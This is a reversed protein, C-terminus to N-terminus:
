IQTTRCRTKDNKSEEKKCVPARAFHGKEGCDFCTASAAPCSGSKHLPRTCLECKDEKGKRAGRTKKKVKLARIQEELRAIRESDGNEFKGSNLNDVKKRSQELALGMKITEELALDESLIKQQLKKDSTQYLIADRTAKQVNYNAFDCREAQEKIKPFWAAFTKDSQTMQTFLKHRAVAQNTQKKIGARVKELVQDFTDEEEVLGIHVLLTEMDEGGILRLMAVAKKCAGCATHNISHQGEM